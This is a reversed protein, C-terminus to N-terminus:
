RKNQMIKEYIEKCPTGDYFCYIGMNEQQTFHISDFQLEKNKECAQIIDYVIREGGFWNYIHQIAQNFLYMDKLILLEKKVNVNKNCYYKYLIFNAEDEFAKLLYLLRTNLINTPDTYSTDTESLERIYSIYTKM